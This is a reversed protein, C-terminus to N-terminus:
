QAFNNQVTEFHYTTLHESLEELTTVELFIAPNIQISFFDNIVVCLQNVEMSAFGYEDLDDEWQIDVEPCKLIKASEAILFDSLKEELENM